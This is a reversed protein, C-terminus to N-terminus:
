LVLSVFIQQDFQQIGEPLNPIAHEIFRNAARIDLSTTPRQPGSIDSGDHAAFQFDCKLIQVFNLSSVDVLVCNILMLFAMAM